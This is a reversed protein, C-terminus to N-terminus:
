GEVPEFEILVENKNVADGKNCNISKIRAPADCKLVNEMKMAELVLLPQGEEVESGEEVNVKLVLGPMPAKLENVASSLMDAMGLEHLLLDFRDAASIEFSHNNVVLQLKKTKYDASELFVDYSQGDIIVSYGEQANGTIDLEYPKENITGATTQKPNPKVEYQNDNISIQYM